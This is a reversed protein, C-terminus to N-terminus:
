SPLVSAAERFMEAGAVFGLIMAGSLLPNPRGRKLMLFGNGLTILGSTFLMGLGAFSRGFFSAGVEHSVSHLPHTGAVFALVIFIIGTILCMVTGSGVVVFARTKMRGGRGARGYFVVSICVEVDSRSREVLSFAGVDDGPAGSRFV